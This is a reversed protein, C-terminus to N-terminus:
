DDVKIVIDVYLISHHRYTCRYSIRISFCPDAFSQFQARAGALARSNPMDCIEMMRWALVMQGRTYLARRVCAVPYLVILCVFMSDEFLTIIFLWLKTNKTGTTWLINHTILM